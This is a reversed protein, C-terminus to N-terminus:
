RAHLPVLPRDAHAPIWVEWVDRHGVFSGVRPYLALTREIFTVVKQELRRAATAADHKILYTLQGELDRRAAPAVTIKM